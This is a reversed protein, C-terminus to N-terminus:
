RRVPKRNRTGKSWRELVTMVPVEPITEHDDIMMVAARILADQVLWKPYKTALWPRFKGIPRIWYYYQIEGLVVRPGHRWLARTVRIAEKM